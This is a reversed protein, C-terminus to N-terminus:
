EEVEVGGFTEFFWSTLKVKDFDSLAAVVDSHKFVDDPFCRIDMKVSELSSVLPKGKMIDKRLSELEEAIMPAYDYLALNRFTHAAQVPSSVEVNKPDSNYVKKVVDNRFTVESPVSDVIRDHLIKNDPIWAKVCVFDSEGGFVAIFEKLAAIVERELTAVADVTQEYRQKASGFIKFVREKDVKNTVEIQTKKIVFRCGMFNDHCLESKNIVKLEKFRGGVSGETKLYKFYFRANHPNYYAYEYDKSGVGGVSVHNKSTEKLAKDFIPTILKKIHKYMPSAKEQETINGCSVLPHSPTM